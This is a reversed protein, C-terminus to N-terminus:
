IIFATTAERADRRMLLNPTGVRLLVFVCTSCNCRGRGARTSASSRATGSRDRPASSSGDLQDGIASEIASDIIPPLVRPSMLPGGSRKEVTTAKKEVPSRTSTDTRVSNSRFRGPPPSRDGGGSPRLVSASSMAKMSSAGSAAPARASGLSSGM